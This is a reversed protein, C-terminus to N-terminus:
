NCKASTDHLEQISALFRLKLDNNNVEKINWEKEASLSLVELNSILNDLVESVNKYSM